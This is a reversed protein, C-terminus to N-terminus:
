VQLVSINKRIGNISPSMWDMYWTILNESNKVGENLWRERSDLVGGGVEMKSFKM